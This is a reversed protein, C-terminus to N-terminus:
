HEKILIKRKMGNIEDIHVVMLHENRTQNSKQLLIHKWWSTFSIRLFGVVHVIHLKKPSM